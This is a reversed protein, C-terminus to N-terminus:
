APLLGGRHIVIPVTSGMMQLLIRVRGNDDLRDLTGILDTFPGSLIRVNQGARLSDGFLSVNAGDAQEIIAEVIGKPVPTPRNDCTFLSSVGVTSRVSLWRDIDLDLIIFLYRPFLAVRATRLQRAHRVTRFIEPLFTTFGQAELHMRARAESRPQTHVLFWRQKEQLKPSKNAFLNWMLQSM